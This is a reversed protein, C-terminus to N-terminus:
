VENSLFEKFREFPIVEDYYYKLIRYARPAIDGSYIFVLRYSSSEIDVTPFVWEIAQITQDVSRNQGLHEHKILYKKSNKNFSLDFKHRITAGQVKTNREVGKIKESAMTYLQDKVDKRDELTDQQATVTLLIPYRLYGSVLLYDSEPLHRIDLMKRIPDKFFDQHEWASSDQLVEISSVSGSGILLTGTMRLIKDSLFPSRTIYIQHYFFSRGEDILNEFVQAIIGHETRAFFRDADDLILSVSIGIYLIGNKNKNRTDWQDRLYKIIEDLISWEPHQIESPSSSDIVLFKGNGTDEVQKYLEDLRARQFEELKWMILNNMNKFDDPNRTFCIVFGQNTVLDTIVKSTIDLQFRRPIDGIMINMASATLRVPIHPRGLTTGVTVYEAESTDRLELALRVHEESAIDMSIGIPIIPAYSISEQDSLIGLIIVNVMYSSQIKEDTTQTTDDIQVSPLVQVENVVGVTIYTRMDYKFKGSVYDWQRIPIDFICKMQTSSSSLVRGKSNGSLSSKRVRRILDIRTNNQFASLADLGLETIVYIKGKTSGPNTQYVLYQESLAKLAATINPLKTSLSNALESPMMGGYEILQELITRKVSSRAIIKAADEGRFQPKM